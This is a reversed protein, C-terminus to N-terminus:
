KMDRGFSQFNVAIKRVREHVVACLGLFKPPTATSTLDGCWM